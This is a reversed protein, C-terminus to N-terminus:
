PGIYEKHPHWGTGVVPDQEMITANPDAAGTAIVIVESWSVVETKGGNARHRGGAECDTQIGPPSSGGDDGDDSGGHMDDATPTTIVATGQGTRPLESEPDQDNEGRSWWKDRHTPFHMSHRIATESSRADWAEEGLLCRVLRRMANFSQVAADMAGDSIYFIRALHPLGWRADMPGAASCAISVATASGDFWMLVALVTRYTEVWPEDKGAEAERRMCAALDGIVEAAVVARDLGLSYFRAVADFIHPKRFWRTAVIHAATPVDTGDIVLVTL